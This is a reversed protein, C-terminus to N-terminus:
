QKETRRLRLRFIKASKRCKLSYMSPNKNRAGFARAFINPYKVPPCCMVDDKEFEMSTTPLHGAGRRAGMGMLAQEKILLNQKECKCGFNLM